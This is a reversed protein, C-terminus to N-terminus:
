RRRGPYLRGNRGRYPGSDGDDADDLGLQAVLRSFAARADREVAVAPHARPAGFRDTYTIGERGIQRRATAARDLAEAALIVLKVDTETAEGPVDLVSEAWARAKAGLHSPLQEISV